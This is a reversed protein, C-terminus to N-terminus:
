LGAVIVSKGPAKKDPQIRFKKVEPLPLTVRVVVPKAALAKLADLGRQIEMEAATHRPVTLVYAPLQVTENEEEPRSAIATLSTLGLCALSLLLVKSKM